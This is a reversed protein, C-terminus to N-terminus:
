SMEKCLFEARDVGGGHNQGKRDGTGVPNQPATVRAPFM